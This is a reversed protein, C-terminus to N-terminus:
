NRVLYNILMLTRRFASNKSVYFPLNCNKLYLFNVTCCSKLYYHCVIVKIKRIAQGTKRGPMRSWHFVSLPLVNGDVALYRVYKALQEAGKKCPRGMLTEVQIKEGDKLDKLFKLKRKKRMKKVRSLVM